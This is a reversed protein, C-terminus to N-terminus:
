KEQVVVDQGEGTSEQTAVDAKAAEKWAEADAAKSTAAPEVEKPANVVDTDALNSPPMQQGKFWGAEVKVEAAEGFVSDHETIMIEVAAMVTPMSCMAITRPNMRNIAMMEESCAARMVATLDRFIGVQLPSLNSLADKVWQTDPKQELKVLAQVENQMNYAGDPSQWVFGKAGSDDKLDKFYKVILSTVNDVNENDPLVAAPNYNFEDIWADVSLGRGNIRFLGEHDLGHIM